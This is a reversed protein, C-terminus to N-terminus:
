RSGGNLPQPQPEQPEATALRWARRSADDPILWGEAELANIAPDLNDKSRLKSPGHKQVFAATVHQLGKAVIWQRLVEADQKTPASQIESAMRVAEDLYWSMLERARFMADGDIETAHRDDVITLVGAIRAAQEASKSAVDRLKAFPRSPAMNTEILDHFEIWVVRAEDSLELARPTLENGAANAASIPLEFISLIRATYRRLVADLERASEKWLRTGALTEPAAFLIRSM